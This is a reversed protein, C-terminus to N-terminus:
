FILIGALPFLFGKSSSIIKDHYLNAIGSEDRSCEVITLATFYAIYHYIIFYLLRDYEVYGPSWDDRRYRIAHTGSIKEKITAGSIFHFNELSLYLLLIASM